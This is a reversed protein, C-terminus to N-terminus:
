RWNKYFEDCDDTTGLLHENGEYPICQKWGTGGLVYFPEYKDKMYCGFITPRWVKNHANRVLVRSEFPVLTNIDFKNPVLEWNDQESFPISGIGKAIISEYEYYEDEINVETIKVRYVDIDQIANGVKFKPKIVKELTKTEENWKYGHEKIADFLKEKEEEIALRNFGWKGKEFLENRQFDWGFYCYGDYSNDDESHTLHKLLFLQFSKADEAVVVDGDVFPRHFGEWTKKGKPFIVCKAEDIDTYTGYKTLDLFYGNKTKIRIPYEHEPSDDIKYLTANDYITCDLEMGIPCNRLLEAVNIKEM